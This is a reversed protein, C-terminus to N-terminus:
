QDELFAEVDAILRTDGGNSEHESLQAVAKATAIILDLKAKAEAYSEHAASRRGHHKASNLEQRAIELARATELRLEHLSVRDLDLPSPVGLVDQEEPTLFIIKSNDPDFEM